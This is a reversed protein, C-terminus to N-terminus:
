RNTLQFGVCVATKLNGYVTFRKVTNMPLQLTRLKRMLDLEREFVEVEDDTYRANDVRPDYHTAYSLLKSTLQELPFNANAMLQPDVFESM